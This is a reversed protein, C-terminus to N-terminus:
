GAHKYLLRGAVAILRDPAYSWLAAPMAAHWHTSQRRTNARWYCLPSRSAAWHDKFTTLGANEIDSRGLDLEEYGRARGDQIVQWLLRIMGGTAHLTQDSAGYKYTLTKKFGLTLAGAVPTGDKSAVYIRVADGGEEILHRFWPLPQAPLRHRRRTLIILEYLAEVLRANRGSDVHIRERDARRIKRQVCSPHFRHLLDPLEPRLDLRHLVFAQQNRYGSAHRALCMTPRLEAYRCGENASRQLFAAALTGMTPADSALIDCHDSLPLSVLRRGTLWSSIRSFALGDTLDSGPPSTTLVAPQYGYTRALASLWPRSHFVSAAPHRSLLDTWREDRLPNIEYVPSALPNSV